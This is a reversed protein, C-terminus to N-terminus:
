LRRRGCLRTDIPPAHDQRAAPCPCHCHCHRRRTPCRTSVCSLLDSVSPHRSRVGIPVLRGPRQTVLAPSAKAVICGPLDGSALADFMTRGVAVRSTWCVVAADSRMRITQRDDPHMPAPRRLSTAAHHGYRAVAKAPPIAVRMPRSAAVQCPPETARGAMNPRAISGPRGLRRVGRAAGGDDDHDRAQWAEFFEIGDRVTIFPRPM